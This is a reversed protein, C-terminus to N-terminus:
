LPFRDYLGRHAIGPTEHKDCKVGVITCYVKTTKEPTTELCDFSYALSGLAGRLNKQKEVQLHKRTEAEEFDGNDRSAEWALDFVGSRSHLRAQHPEIPSRPKM